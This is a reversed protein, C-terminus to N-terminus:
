SALPLEMQEVLYVRGSEALVREARRRFGDEEVHHAHCLVVLNAQHHQCGPRYGGRHTVPQVHHVEPALLPVPTPCRACAYGAADLAAQRAVAWVHNTAHDVGCADSCWRRRGPPLPRGCWACRRDRRDGHALPCGADM